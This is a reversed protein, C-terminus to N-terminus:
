APPTLPRELTVVDPPLGWESGGLRSVPQLRTMAPVGEVLAEDRVTMAVVRGLVLTCTGVEVTDHLVCEISAPAEAVRPVAIQESAETRLGVAEAEDIEPPYPASTQNIAEMQPRSALNVCFERTALVNRLTDKAGVSTFQVVPPRNAAVTFFSHPALNLVGDASLSTVWAIPRPVVLATLLKYPNVDPDATDFVHRPNVPGLM